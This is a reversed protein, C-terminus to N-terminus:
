IDAGLDNLSEGRIPSTREFPDQRLNMITPMDTAVKEGPWGWPQQFFQFKFDDIRLRGSQPGGFYFLEHRASPGNGSLLDMQDYGDLHNKYTRDGLKVGKLLQDRSTRSQGGGSGADPVLRSRLLNREGGAQSSKGPWRIICTGPLRRRVVHRQHGQVADHRRGAVYVGRRWQGHHFHRHHERSRRHRRSAESSEGVSDDLQAMGAEEFM